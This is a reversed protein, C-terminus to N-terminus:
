HLRRRYRVGGAVLDIEVLETVVQRRRGAGAAVVRLDVVVPPRVVDVLVAGHVVEVLVSTTRGGGIAFCRSRRLAAASVLTLTPSLVSGRDVPLCATVSFSGVGPRTTGVSPTAVGDARELPSPM